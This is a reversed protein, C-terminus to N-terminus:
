SDTKLFDIHSLNVGTSRSMDMSSIDNGIKLNYRMRKIAGVISDQKIIVM